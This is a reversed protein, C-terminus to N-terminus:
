REQDTTTPETDVTPLSDLAERLQRMALDLLAGIGGTQRFPHRDWEVLVARAKGRLEEVSRLADAASVTVRMADVEVQSLRVFSPHLPPPEIIGGTAHQPVPQAAQVPAGHAHDEGGGPHCHRHGYHEHWLGLGTFEQEALEAESEDPM